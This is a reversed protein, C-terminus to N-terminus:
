AVGHAEFLANWHEMSASAIRAELLKLLIDRHAIRDANTRFRADEALAQDGLAVCLRRWAADNPAGVMVFGDQCRFAQYPVLHWSGSGKREPLIGAQLWGVAHYGLLAVATEMLSATVRTGRGTRQRGILASLIGAYASIG